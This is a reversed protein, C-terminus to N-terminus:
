YDIFQIFDYTAQGAAGSYNKPFYNVSNYNYNNGHWYNAFIPAPRSPWYEAPICDCNSNSSKSVTRVYVKKNASNYIFWSIKDATWDFGVQIASNMPNIGHQGLDIRKEWSRYQASTSAQYIVNTNLVNGFSPLIEIDIETWPNGPTIHWSDYTFLSAVTGPINSLRLRTQVTGYQYKSKSKLEACAGNHLKLALQGGTAASVMDPYFTCGFPDGNKGSSATWLSGNYYNSDFGDWFSAAQAIPAALLGALAGAALTKLTHM